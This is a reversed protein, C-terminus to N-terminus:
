LKKIKFSRRNEICKRKNGIITEIRQESEEESDFLGTLRINGNYIVFKGKEKEQKPFFRKRLIGQKEQWQLVEHPIILLELPDNKM